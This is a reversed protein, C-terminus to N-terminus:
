KELFFFGVDGNQWVACRGAEVDTEPRFVLGANEGSDGADKAVFSDANGGDQLLVGFAALDHGHEQGGVLGFFVVHNFGAFFNVCLGLQFVFGEDHSNQVLNHHIIIFM